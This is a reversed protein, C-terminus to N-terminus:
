DHIEFATLLTCVKSSKHANAGIPPEHEDSVSLAELRSEIVRIAMNIRSVCAEVANSLLDSTPLKITHSRFIHAHNAVFQHYDVFSAPQYSM